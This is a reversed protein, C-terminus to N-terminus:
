WAANMMLRQLCLLDLSHVERAELSEMAVGIATRKCKKAALQLGKKQKPDQSAKSLREWNTLVAEIHRTYFKYFLMVFKDMSVTSHGQLIGTYSSKLLQFKQEVTGNTRGTNIYARGLSEAPQPISDNVSPQHLAQQVADLKSMALSSAALDPFLPDLFAYAFVLVENIFNWYEVYPQVYKIVETPKNAATKNTTPVILYAPNAISVNRSDGSGM